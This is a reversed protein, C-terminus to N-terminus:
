QKPSFMKMHFMLTTRQSISLSDWGEDVTGPSAFRILMGNPALLGIAERFMQPSFRIGRSVIFDFKRGSVAEPFHGQVVEAEVDTSRLVEKQFAIKKHRIEVSTIKASPDCIAWVLGPIGAGSGFDLVRKSSVSIASLARVSEGILIEDIEKSARFGTLNIRPNWELILNRFITLKRSSDETILVEGPM